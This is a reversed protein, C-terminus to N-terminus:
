KTLVECGEKTVLMSAETQAVPEDSLEVLIPHSELAGLRELERMGSYLDFKSDVEASLWRAAFPESNYKESIIKILKRASALRPQVGKIFSFIESSEGNTVFGKGKQTTAFPEIAIVKGEELADEEGNDYNPIFPNDHLNHVGVGHGGLNKIPKFGKAEITEAIVKGIEHVQTGAKVIKIANELAQRTAEVLEAYKGSLDVTLACDGLIGDKAAGFDVKVVDNKSFRLTDDMSPTYHAAQNNISLNIPFAIGFGADRVFSEASDAVEYLSAGEKVLDGALKIAKYSIAGVSRATSEFDDKKQGEDKIKKGEM